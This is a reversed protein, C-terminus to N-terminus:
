LQQRHSNNARYKNKKLCFVAYSISVHSSNLRTSKRDITLAATDATTDLDHAVQPLVGQPSYLQAFTTMAACVLAVVLRAGTLGLDSSRRTPFSPLAPHAASVCGSLYGFLPMFVFLSGLF